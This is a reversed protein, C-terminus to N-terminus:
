NYLNEINQCFLNLTTQQMITIHPFPNFMNPVDVTLRTVTDIAEHLVTTVVGQPLIYNCGNQM